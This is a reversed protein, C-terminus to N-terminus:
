RIPTTRMRAVDCGKPLRDPNPPRNGAYCGPIVYFMDPGHSVAVPPPEPLPEAIKPPEPTVRPEPAPPPSAPASAADPTGGYFPAVYSYAGRRNQLSSPRDYHPTYTGPRAAFPSPPPPPPLTTIGGTSLVKPVFPAPPASGHERREQARVGAASLLVVVAVAASKMATSYRM